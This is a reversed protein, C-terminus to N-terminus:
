FGLGPKILLWCTYLTRFGRGRPLPVSPCVCSGQPRLSAGGEWGLIWIQPHAHEGIPPFGRPWTKLAFGSDVSGVLWPSWSPWDRGGRGAARLASVPESVRLSRARWCCTAWPVDRGARSPQRGGLANLLGSAGETALPAPHADGGRPKATLIQWPVRRLSPTEPYPGQFCLGLCFNPRVRPM